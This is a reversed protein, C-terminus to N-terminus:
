KEVPLVVNWNLNFPELIDALDRLKFPSGSYKVDPSGLIELPNGTQAFLAVLKEKPLTISFDTKVDPKNTSYHLVGNKLYVLVNKNLEPFIFRFYFENGTAKEGDVLISFYEFIGEPTLSNLLKARQNPTLDGSKPSGERLEKAGVLYLNRWIGSESQYALQEFADAQLNRAAQNKPNTYVVYKLVEAVWRYEGAEYSKKAKQLVAAEGGLWEVYKPASEKIPLKDYDAPNGEWWGLYHQYVAKSNHKLTGYFDRNFWEKSLEKPLKIKDAIEDKSYGKNALHVTQDHLYKYLDRQKELFNTLREKGYVPWTHAPVVIEADKGFLDIAEDIYTAWSKADRVKAGRPTLVNHFTHNVLEAGFFVKKSPIYFTFEAPAETNPTLQFVLELGDIVIKEGTKTIEKNPALLTSSGGGLFSKDLGVDVQGFANVPLSSGFQYGARRRMVNGLLINESLSEEYFGQPVIYKVKGSAIDEPKAVGDVGGFHDAHSHTTIVAVVPKDAVHKKVLDYAAKAAFPNTLPDVVIFGSPTEIFAINAIDIGRVQYIGDTIKFLGNINNLKAQRWLAPHVTSPSKGQIFKYDNENVIIQGAANRVIGSDIPAIFGKVADLSDQLDEFNLQKYASEFQKQSFSTAPKSKEPTNQAQAFTSISAGLILPFILQKKM